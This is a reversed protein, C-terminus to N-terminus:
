RQICKDKEKDSSFIYEPYLQDYSSKYDASKSSVQYANLEGTDVGLKM